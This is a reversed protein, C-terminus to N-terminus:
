QKKRNFHFFVCITIKEDEQSTFIRDVIEVINIYEVVNLIKSQNTAVYALWKGPNKEMSPMSVAIMLFMKLILDRDDKNTTM